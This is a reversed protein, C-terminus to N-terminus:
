EAPAIPSVIDGSAGRPSGRTAWLADLRGAAAGLLLALFLNDPSVFLTTEEMSMLLYALTAAIVTVAFLADARGDAGALLARCMGAVALTLLLFPVLGWLGAEALVDVYSNHATDVAQVGNVAIAQEGTEAAGFQGIGVGFIPDRRFLNYGTRYTAFRGSVNETNNLRQGLGSNQSVSGFALIALACMLGLLYFARAYRRPRIGFAIIIIVLVAIFAGRFFTLYIGVLELPAAVLAIALQAQTRRRNALYLTGAFCILLTVALIDDTPYPGSVRLGVGPSTIPVGGVRSVLDIGAVREAIGLVGLLAGTLSLAVLLMDLQSAKAAARRAAMFLIAPLLLADLWTELETRVFGGTLAARAGMALVFWAGAVLLRRSAPAAGLQARESVLWGVMALIWVRDFTAVPHAVPYRLFPYAVATLAVWIVVSRSGMHAVTLLLAIGVAAAVAFESYLRGHAVAAGLLVSLGVAAAVLPAGQAMREAIATHRQMM